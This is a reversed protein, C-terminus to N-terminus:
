PCANTGGSMAGVPAGVSIISGVKRFCSTLATLALMDLVVEGIAGGDISWATARTQNTFFM